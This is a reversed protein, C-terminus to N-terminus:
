TPSYLHIYEDFTPVPLRDVPDNMLDNPDVGRRQLMMRAAAVLERETAASAANNTHDSLHTTM